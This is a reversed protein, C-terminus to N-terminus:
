HSSNLSTSTRDGSAILQDLDDGFLKVAVDARVGAILENMRMQVPQTFEYNNGPILEVGENLEAVLEDRTKRPDRWDERPKLMIFNDAVSPPMPETAVDPTGIKAFVREGEPFERMRAELAEQM